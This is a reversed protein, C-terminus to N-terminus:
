IFSGGIAEMQGPNPREGPAPSAQQSYTGEQATAGTWSKPCLLTRLGPFSQRLASVESQQTLKGTLLSNPFQNAPHHSPICLVPGLLKWSTVSSTSNFLFKGKLIVPSTPSSLSSAQHVLARNGLLWLTQELSNHKSPVAGQAQRHSAGLLYNKTSDGQNIGM